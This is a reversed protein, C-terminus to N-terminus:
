KITVLVFDLTTDGTNGVDHGESIDVADLWGVSGGEMSAPAPQENEHRESWTGGKVHICVQNGPHSHIGTWEGPEIQARQVIMRHNELVLELPINPYVQPTHEVEPAIPADGKLTVYILDIPTDGTNGSNHEASLPIADMGGVEGDPSMIESYEIEGGLRGSWEGGKIHVFIQNGPHSHIGEWEGPGVVLRQLVVHENTLVVEGDSNELNPYTLLFPKDEEAAPIPAESEQASGTVPAMLLISISTAIPNRQMM